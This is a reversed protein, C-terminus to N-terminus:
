AHALEPTAGIVSQGGSTVMAALGASTVSMNEAFFRALAIHEMAQPGGEALGALVGKALYHGGAAIAFL